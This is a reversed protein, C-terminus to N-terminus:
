RRFGRRRRIKFWGFVAAAAALLLWPSFLFHAAFSLVSVAAIVAVAAVVFFLIGPM